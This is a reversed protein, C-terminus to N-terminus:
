QWKGVSEINGATIVYSFKGSELQRLTVVSKFDDDGIRDVQHLRGVSTTRDKEVVRVKLGLYSSCLTLIADIEPTM